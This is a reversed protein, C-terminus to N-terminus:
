VERHQRRSKHDLSLADVLWQVSQAVSAVFFLLSVGGLIKKWWRPKPQLSQEIQQELLEGELFGSEDETDPVAQAEHFEQKAIFASQANLDENMDSENQTFVKKEM